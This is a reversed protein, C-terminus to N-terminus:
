LILLDSNHPFKLFWIDKHAISLFTGFELNETCYTIQDEWTMKEHYDM